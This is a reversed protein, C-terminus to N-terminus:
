KKSMKLKLQELLRKLNKECLYAGVQDGIRRKLTLAQKLYFIADKYQALNSHIVGLRLLINSQQIPDPLIRYLGLSKHYLKEARDLHGQNEDVEALGKCCEAIGEIFDNKEAIELGANYHAVAAEYDGKLFLVNGINTLSTVELDKDKLEEQIIKLSKDLHELAPGFMKQLSFTSGIDLHAQAIGFGDKLETLLKLVEQFQNVAEEYRKESRYAVGLYSRCLAIREQNGLAVFLALAQELKIIGKENKGKEILLIGEKLLKPANNAIDKM